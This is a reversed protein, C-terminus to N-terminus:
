GIDKKLKSFVGCIAMLVVHNGVATPKSLFENYDPGADCLRTLDDLRDTSRKQWDCDIVLTKWEALFVRVLERLEAADIDVTLGIDHMQDLAALLLCNTGDQGTPEFSYRNYEARLREDLALFARDDASLMVRVVVLRAVSSDTVSLERCKQSRFLQM